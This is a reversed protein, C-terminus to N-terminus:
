ANPMMFKKEFDEKIVIEVGVDKAKIVKSTGEEADKNTTVLYSIFPKSMNDIIISGVINKVTYNIWTEM